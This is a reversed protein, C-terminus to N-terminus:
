IKYSYKLLFPIALLRIISFSLFVMKEFKNFKNFLKKIKNM